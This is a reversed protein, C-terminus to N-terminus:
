PFWFMGLVTEYPVVAVLKPVLNKKTVNITRAFKTESALYSQYTSVMLKPKNYGAFLMTSCAVYWEQSGGFGTVM